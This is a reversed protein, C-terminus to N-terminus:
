SNINYFYKMDKLQDILKPTKIKGKLCKDMTPENIPNITIDHKGYVEKLM